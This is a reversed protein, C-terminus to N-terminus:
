FWCIRIKGGTSRLIRVEIVICIRNIGYMEQDLFGTTRLFNHPSGHAMFVEQMNKFIVTKVPDM